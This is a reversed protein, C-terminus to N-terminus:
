ALEAVEHGAFLGDDYVNHIAREEIRRIRRSGKKSEKDHRIGNTAFMVPLKRDPFTVLFNGTWFTKFVTGKGYGKSVEDDYEILEDGEKLDKFATINTKM